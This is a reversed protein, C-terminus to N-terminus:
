IRQIAASWAGQLRLVTLGINVVEAQAPEAEGGKPLIAGADFFPAFFLALLLLLRSRREEERWDVGSDATSM